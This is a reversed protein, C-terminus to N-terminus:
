RKAASIDDLLTEVDHSESLSCTSDRIEGQIEDQAPHCVIRCGFQMIVM